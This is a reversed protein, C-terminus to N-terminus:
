RLLQQWGQMQVHLLLRLLLVREPLLHWPPTGRLLLSRLVMLLVQWILARM